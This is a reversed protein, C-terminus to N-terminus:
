LYELTLTAQSWLKWFGAEQKFIVISDIINDKFEPGSIKSTKQKVRGLAYEGELSIYKFSLLEYKIDYVPFVQSSFEKTAEFGPSKSHVTQMVKEIDELEYAEFNETIVSKLVTVIDNDEKANDALVFRSFLFVLALILFIIRKGM